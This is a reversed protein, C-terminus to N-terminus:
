QKKILGEIIKVFYSNKLNIKEGTKKDTEYPFNTQIYRIYGEKDVFINKPLSSIKLVKKYEDANELIYYNYPHKELFEKLDDTSCSSETIAIFNMENQYIDKLGNLEPIEAVCPKCYIAWFNILAPKGILQSLSFEKGNLDQLKYEPLKKNLFLFISDQKFIFEFKHKNISSESKQANFALYNIITDGKVIRHYITPILDYNDPLTTSLKDFALHVTEETFLSDTNFSYYNSQGYCFGTFFLSTLM